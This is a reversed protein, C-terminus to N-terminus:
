EFINEIEETVDYVRDGANYAIFEYGGESVLEVVQFGNDILDEAYEDKAVLWSIRDLEYGPVDLVTEEPGRYRVMRCVDEWSDVKDFYKDAVSSATSAFIRSSTIADPASTEVYDELMINLTQENVRFFRGRKSKSGVYNKVPGRDTDWYMFQRASVHGDNEHKVEIYKNKNRKNQYTIIESTRIYRKM